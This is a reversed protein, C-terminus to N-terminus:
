LITGSTKALVAALIAVGLLTSELLPHHLIFKETDNVLDNWLHRVKLSHHILLTILAAGSLLAMAATIWPWHGSTLSQAKSINQSVPAASAIPQETTIPAPNTPKAEEVPKAPAPATPKPKPKQQTTAPATQPPSPTTPAVPAPTQASAVQPQAYHAVVVTQQGDGNFNPSNAFGFGVETFAGDLMNAKHTPSAMWGSVTASSTTFGYALNEGAKKYDYGAADFFAWPQQGGPGVHSWYDKAVMDNAKAQASSNLKSNLSLAAKGNAGRHSNTASLLGGRSMETAYALTNGSEPHWFSLFLSAIISIVLPLYPFYTKAYDHGQKHHRGHRKTQNKTFGRPTRKSKTSKPM